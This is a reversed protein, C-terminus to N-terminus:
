FMAATVAGQVASQAAGTAVRKATKVATKAAGSFNGRALKQGVKALGGGASGITEVAGRVPEPLAKTAKKAFTVLAKGAVKKGINGVTRMVKKGLIAM